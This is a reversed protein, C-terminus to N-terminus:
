RRRADHTPLLHSSTFLTHLISVSSRRRARPPASSTSILEANPDLLPNSNVLASITANSSSDESIIPPQIVFSVRRNKLKNEEQNDTM